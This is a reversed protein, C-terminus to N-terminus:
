ASILRFRVNPGLNDDHIYFTEVSSDQYEVDGAGIPKSASERFGVLCIAHGYLQGNSVRQGGLIIPYGSRILSACSNAFLEKDFTSQDLKGGIVIPSLSNEKIAECIQH